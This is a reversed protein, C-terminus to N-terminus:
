GPYEDDDNDGIGVDVVLPVALESASEMHKCLIDSATDRYEEQVELVLEDHVQMLLRAPPQDEQIWDDVALMARKIIDAATGQTSANITTREAATHRQSDRTNPM